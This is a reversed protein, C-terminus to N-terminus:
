FVEGERNIVILTQSLWVLTVSSFTGLNFDSRVRGLNPFFFNGRLRISPVPSVDDKMLTIEAGDPWGQTDVEFNVGLAADILYKGPKEIRGNEEPAVRMWGGLKSELMIDLNGAIISIVQGVTAADSDGVGAEVQTIRRRGVAVVNMEYAKTNAGIAVATAPAVANEGIAVGNGSPVSASSGIAIAGSSLVDGTKANHGIAVTNASIAQANFGLAVAGGNRARTAAGIAVSNDGITAAAGAGIVTNSFGPANASTGIAVSQSESKAGEGISLSQNGAFTNTGTAGTVVVGAINVSSGGGTGSAGPWDLGNWLPLGGSETIKLLTEKNPFANNILAQATGADEKTAIQATLSATASALADASAFETRRAFAFAANTDTTLVGDAIVPVINNKTGNGTANYQQLILANPEGAPLPGTCGTIFLAAITILYVLTKKMTPFILIRSVM